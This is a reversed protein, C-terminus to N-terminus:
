HYSTAGIGHRGPNIMYAPHGMPGQARTITKIAV